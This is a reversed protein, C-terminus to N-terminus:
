RIGRAPHLLTDRAAAMSDVQRQCEALQADHAVDRRLRDDGARWLLVIVLLLAAIISLGIWRWPDPRRRTDLGVLLHPNM